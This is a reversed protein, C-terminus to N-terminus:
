DRNGTQKNGVKVATRRRTKPRAESAEVKPANMEAEDALYAAGVTAMVRLMCHSCSMSLRETYGLEKYIGCIVRLGHPGATRYVDRTAKGLKERYPTLADFQEKTLRM